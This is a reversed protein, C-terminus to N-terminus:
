LGATIASTPLYPHQSRRGQGLFPARREDDLYQIEISATVPDTVETYGNIMADKAGLAVARELETAAAVPDQMPVAAFFGFRDSHLKVFNDHVEDNLEKAFKTANAPDPIGQIAPASISVVVYSIGSTTWLHSAPPYISSASSGTKRAPSSLTRLVHFSPLLPKYALSHFLDM